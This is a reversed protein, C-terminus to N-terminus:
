AQSTPAKVPIEYGGGKGNEDNITRTFWGYKGDDKWSEATHVTM